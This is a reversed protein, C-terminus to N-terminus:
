LGPGPGRDVPARQAADIERGHRRQALEDGGTPARGEDRWELEQQDHAQGGVRHVRDGTEAAVGGEELVPEVVAQQGARRHQAQRAAREDRGLARRPEHESGPQRDPRRAHDVRRQVRRQLVAREGRAGVHQPQGEIREGVARQDQQQAGAHAVQAQGQPEVADHAREREGRDDGREGERREDLGAPAVARVDEGVEGVRDGVQHERAEDQPHARQGAPARPPHESEDRDRQQEPREDVHPRQPGGDGATRGGPGEVPQPGRGGRQEAQGGPLGDACRLRDLERAQAREQRGDDEGGGRQAQHEVAARM